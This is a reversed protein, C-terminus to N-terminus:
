PVPFGFVPYKSGSPITEQKEGSNSKRTPATAPVHTMEGYRPMPTAVVGSCGDFMCVLSTPAANPIYPPNWVPVTMKHGSGPGKYKIHYMQQTDFM